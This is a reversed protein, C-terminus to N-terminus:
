ASIPSNVRAVKRAQPTGCSMTIVPRWGRVLARRLLELRLRQGAANDHVEGLLAITDGSLRPEWPQPPTACATLLACLASVVLALLRGCRAAHRAARDAM